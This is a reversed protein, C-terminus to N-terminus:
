RPRIQRIPHEWLKQAPGLESHDHDASTSLFPALLAFVFPANYIQLEALGPANGSEQIVYFRLSSAYIGSGGPGLTVVGGNSDIPGVYARTNDSFILAGMTIKNQTNVPGYLVVQKMQLTLFTDSM